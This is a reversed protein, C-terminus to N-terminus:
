PPVANNDGSLGLGSGKAGREVELWDTCFNEKCYKRYVWAYGQRVLTENLIATDDPSQVLAVTRGYPDTDMPIITVVKGAVKGATFQKVRNGFAQRKEPTDIGYLRIM